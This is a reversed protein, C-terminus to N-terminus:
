TDSHGLDKGPAIQDRMAQKLAKLEPFKGAIKRSHILTEDIWVEFVGGSGPRLSLEDIEDAFTM